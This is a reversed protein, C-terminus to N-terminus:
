HGSPPPVKYGPPYGPPYQPHIQPQIPHNPSNYGPPYGPPYQHHAQPISNSTPTRSAASGKLQANAKEILGDVEEKSRGILYKYLNRSEENEKEETSNYEGKAEYHEPSVFKKVATVTEFIYKDLSDVVQDATPRSQPNVSILPLVLPASQFMPPIQVCQRIPDWIPLQKEFIEYLVLGLSYIDASVNYNNGMKVEPAMWLPTGANITHIAYNLQSNVMKATGFDSLKCAYDEAVLVNMSKVDRHIIGSKHLHSLGLAIHRAMRLKMLRSLPHQHSNKHLINYLDGKPMFEMIISLTAGNYNYGYIEVIFPSKYMVMVSIEKKWDEFTKADRIAMEKIVVTKEVGTVRGRYIEGYSGKAFPKPEKQIDKLEFATLQSLVSQPLLRGM